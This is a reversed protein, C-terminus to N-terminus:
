WDAEGKLSETEKVIYHARHILCKILSSNLFMHLAGPGNGLVYYVTTVKKLDCM